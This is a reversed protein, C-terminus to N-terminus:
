KLYSNDHPPRESSAGLVAQFASGLHDIGHEREGSKSRPRVFVNRMRYPPRPATIRAALKTADRVFYLWRHTCVAKRPLSQAGPLTALNVDICMRSHRVFLWYQVGGLWNRRAVEVRRAGAVVLEVSHRQRRASGRRSARSASVYRRLSSSNRVGSLTYQGAGVHEAKMEGRKMGATGVLEGDDGLCLCRPVSCHHCLMNVKTADGIMEAVVRGRFLQCSVHLENHLVRFSVIAGLMGDGFGGLLQKVDIELLNVGDKVFTAIQVFHLCISCPTSGQSVVLLSSSNAM